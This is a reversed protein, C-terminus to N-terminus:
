TKHAFAAAGISREGRTWLDRAMDDLYRFWQEDRDEPEVDGLISNVSVGRSKGTYKAKGDAIRSFAYVGPKIWVGATLSDKEWEGFTKTKSEVGLPELSQIGDTAFFIVAWPNKLAARLLQARTGATIAGAVWPNATNPPRGTRGGVSQATKGYVSNIGLKIV